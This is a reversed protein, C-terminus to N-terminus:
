ECLARLHARGRPPGASVRSGAKSLPDLDGLLREAGLGRLLLPLLVLARRRTRAVAVAIPLFRPSPSGRTLAPAPVPLRLVVFRHILHASCSAFVDIQDM